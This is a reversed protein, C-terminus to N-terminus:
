STFNILLIPVSGFRAPRKGVKIFPTKENDRTDVFLQAGVTSSPTAGFSKLKEELKLEVGTDWIEQPTLPIDSNNLVEKAFDKFTIAM